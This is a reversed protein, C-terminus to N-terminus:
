STFTLNEKDFINFPRFESLVERAGCYDIKKGRMKDFEDDRQKECKNQRPSKSNTVKKSFDIGKFSIIIKLLNSAIQIGTQIRTM